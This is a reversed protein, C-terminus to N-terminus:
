IHRERAILKDLHVNRVNKSLKIVIYFSYTYKVFLNIARMYYYTIIIYLKSVICSQIPLKSLLEITKNNFKVFGHRENIVKEVDFRKSVAKQRSQM